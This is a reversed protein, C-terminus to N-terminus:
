RGAQPISRDPRVPVSEICQWRGDASTSAGSEWKDDLLMDVYMNPGFLPDIGGDEGVGTLTISIYTLGQKM